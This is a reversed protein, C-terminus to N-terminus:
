ANKQIIKGDRLIANLQVIIKRMCATIAVMKEKGRNLLSRYYDKMPGKASKRSFTLAILFLPKKIIQRGGMVRRHGQKKGSDKACPAVGALAAVERRDFTGLEPMHALLKTASVRGVGKVKCLLKIKDEQDKLEKCLEDIKKEVSKILTDLTAITEDIFSKIMECGPSKQRNKHGARQVKINELYLSLERIKEQTESPKQYVPLEKHREQGYKSLKKADIMDTKADCKLSNMFYKAKRNDTRHITFNLGILADICKREYGGTNELVM